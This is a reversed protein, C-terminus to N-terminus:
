RYMRELQWNYLTISKQKYPIEDYEFEFETECNLTAEKIVGRPLVVLKINGSGKLNFIEVLENIGFINNRSPSGTLKEFTGEITYEKPTFETLKVEATDNFYAGDIWIEFFRKWAEDKSVTYEPVLNKAIDPIFKMFSPKLSREWIYKAEPDKIGDEPHNIKVILSDLMEGTIKVVENYPSYTMYFERGLLTSYTLFENTEFPFDTDDDQSNYRYLKGDSTTLEYRLSDFSVKVENFGNEPFSNQVMTFYFQVKRNYNIENKSKLDIRTIKSEESFVFNHFINTGFKFALRFKESSIADGQPLGKHTQAFVNLKIIILVLVLSILNKM